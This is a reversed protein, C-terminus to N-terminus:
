PEADADADPYCLPCSAISEPEGCQIAIVRAAHNDEEPEQWNWRFVQGHGPHKDCEEWEAPGEGPDGHLGAFEIREDDTMCEPDYGFLLTRVCEGLPSLELYGPKRPMEQVIGRRELADLVANSAGGIGHKIHAKQAVGLGKAAERPTTPKAKV